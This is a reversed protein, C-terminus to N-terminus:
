EEIDIYYARVWDNYYSMEDDIEIDKEDFDFDHLTLYDIIAEKPTKNFCVNFWEWYNNHNLFEVMVAKMKIGGINKIIGCNL